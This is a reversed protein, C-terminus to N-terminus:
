KPSLIDGNLSVVINADDDDLTSIKLCIRYMTYVVTGVMVMVNIIKKIAPNPISLVPERCMSSYVSPSEDVNLIEAHVNSTGITVPTSMARCAGEQMTNNMEDINAPM